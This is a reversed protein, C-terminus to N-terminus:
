HHIAGLMKLRETHPNQGATLHRMNKETAPDKAIQLAKMIMELSKPYNGKHMLAYSYGHLWNAEDLKLKFRHSYSVAKELYYISSDLNIESYYYGLQGYIDLRITDDPAN